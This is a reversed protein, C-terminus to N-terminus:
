LAMGVLPAIGDFCSYCRSAWDRFSFGFEALTHFRHFDLKAM